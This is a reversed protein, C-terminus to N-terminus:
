RRLGKPAPNRPTQNGPVMADSPRSPPLCIDDFCHARNQRIKPRTFFGRGPVLPRIIDARFKKDELIQGILNIPEGAKL